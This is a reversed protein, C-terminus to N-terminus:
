LGMRDMYHLEEEAQNNGMQLAKMFSHRALTYNGKHMYIKGIYLYSFSTGADKFINLAKDLDQNLIGGEYYLVGLYDKARENGEKASESLLSLIKKTNGKALYLALAYHYKDNSLLLDEDVSAYMEVAKESDKEVGDGFLYMEALYLKARDIEKKQNRYMPSILLVQFMAFALEYKRNLLLEKGLYLFAKAYGAEGVAQLIKMGIKQAYYRCSEFLTEGIEYVLESRNEDILREFNINLLAEWQEEEKETNDDMDVIHVLSKMYALYLEDDDEYGKTKRIRSATTYYWDLAEDEDEEVGSGYYYADAVEYASLVHGLIASELFYEFAKEDSEIYGGYGLQYALGVQYMGELSGLESAKEYWKMSIDIDDKEEEYYKALIIMSEIDGNNAKKKLQEINM